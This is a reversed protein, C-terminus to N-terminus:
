FLLRYRMSQVGKVCEIILVRVVRLVSVLDSEFTVCCRVPPMCYREVAVCQSLLLVALCSIANM